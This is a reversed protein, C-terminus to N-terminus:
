KIRKSKKPFIVCYTTCTGERIAKNLELLDSKLNENLDFIDKLEHMLRKTTEDDANSISYIMWMGKREDKVLGANKLYTLHRSVKTQSFNLIRQMDCVCLEGANVLLNLIRLRSEDSLAKFLNALERM